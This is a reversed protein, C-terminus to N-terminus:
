RIRGLIQLDQEFGPFYCPIRHIERCAVIFSPSLAIKARIWFFLLSHAPFAPPQQRCTPLLLGFGLASAKHNAPREKLVRVSVKTLEYSRDAKASQLM